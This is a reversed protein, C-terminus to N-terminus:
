EATGGKTGSDSLLPPGERAGAKTSPTERKDTESEPTQPAFASARQHNTSSMSCVITSSATLSVTFNTSAHM